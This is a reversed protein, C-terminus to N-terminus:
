RFDIGVVNLADIDDDKAAFADAESQLFTLSDSFDRIKGGLRWKRKKGRSCLLLVGHRSKEGRMYRGILQDVLAHRLKPGTWNEAVKIEISVPHNPCASHAIRIDPMKKRDAEEERHVTYSHRNRIELQDMFWPQFKKEDALEFLTRVSSEGREVHEKIDDLRDLAVRHLDDATRIPIAHSQSWDLAEKPTMPLAQPSRQPGHRAHRLLIDRNDSMRPDNALRELAALAAPTGIAALGDFLQNRFSEANDRRDVFHGRGSGHRNDETPRISSYVIPILRELAEADSMITRAAPERDAREGLRACTAEVVADLDERDANSAFDELYCVAGLPKWRAVASWWLIGQEISEAEDLRTACLDIFSALEEGVLWDCVILADELSRESAPVVQKLERLVVVALLPRIQEPMRRWRGLVEPYSDPANLQLDAIIAPRLSEVVLAPHAHSLDQFWDPFGNLQRTAYRVALEVERDDLDSANLDAEFELQLGALGMVVYNSIANRQEQEFHFPPRWQRWFLRLGSATADAIGQGFEKVVKELDIGLSDGVPHAQSCIWDLLNRHEGSHIREINETLIKVNESHDKLARSQRAQMENQIEIERETPTSPIRSRQEERHLMESLRPDKSSSAAALLTAAIEPSAGQWQLLTAFALHRADVEPHTLVDEALWVADQIGIKSLAHHRHVQWPNEPWEGNKHERAEGVRLWFLWRRLRPKSAIAKLLEERMAKGDWRRESASRLLVLAEMLETAPEDAPAMAEIIVRSLEQLGHLLWGQDRSTERISQALEDLMPLRDSVPCDGPLDHWAFSKIVTQVNPSGPVVRRLVQGVEATTITTPFFHSAFVGAVDQNLPNPDQLIQVALRRKDGTAALADVARFAECRVHRDAANNAALASARAGCSRLRGETALELLFGIAEQPLNTRSLHKGVAAELAPAFRRLADRDFHDYLRNRGAYRDLYASLARERAKLTHGAPDGHQFVAEPEVEILRKLVGADALSLWAATPLLHAPVFPRGGVEKVLLADVERRTLGGDIKVQIWKAALYEQVTRHHLRVRGYTSEDFVARTLLERIEDDSWDELTERPDITDSRGEGTSEEGPVLFSWRGCLVALGALRMLGTRAKGKALPSRPCSKPRREDLRKTVSREVLETLTGIKGHEEWYPVLWEVDLPRAVFPQASGERVAELLGEPDSAGYHRALQKVQEDDLPLLQVVKLDEPNGGDGRVYEVMHPLGSASSWDSARCSVAVRARSRADGLHQRGPGIGGVPGIANM